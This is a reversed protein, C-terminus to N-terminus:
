EGKLTIINNKLKKIYKEFKKFRILEKNYLEIRKNNEYTNEALAWGYNTCLRENTEKNTFHFSNNKLKIVDIVITGQKIYKSELKGPKWVMDLLYIYEIDPNPNLNNKNILFDFMAM